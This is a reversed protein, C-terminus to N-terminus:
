TFPPLPLSTILPPAPASVKSPPNPSSRNEKSLAASVLIEPKSPEFESNELISVMTFKLVEVSDSVTSINDPASKKLPRVKAPFAVTVTVATSMTDAAVNWSINSPM